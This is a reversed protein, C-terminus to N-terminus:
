GFIRVSETPRYEKWPSFITSHPLIAAPAQIVMRGISNNNTVNWFYKIWPIEPATLSYRFSLSAMHSSSNCHQQCSCQYTHSATSSYFNYARFRPAATLFCLKFFNLCRFIFFDYQIDDVPTVTRFIGSFFQILLKHLIM